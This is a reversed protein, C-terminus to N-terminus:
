QIATLPIAHVPWAASLEYLHTKMDSLTLIAANHWVWVKLSLMIKDWQTDKPDYSQSNFLTAARAAYIPGPGVSWLQLTDQLEMVKRARDVNLPRMGQALLKRVFPTHFEHRGKFLLWAETAESPDETAGKCTTTLTIIDALDLLGDLNEGMIRFMDVAANDAM